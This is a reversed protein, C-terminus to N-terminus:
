GHLKRRNSVQGQLGIGLPGGEDGTCCPMELHDNRDGETGDHCVDRPFTPIVPPKAWARAPARSVRRGAGPLGGIGPSVLPRAIGRRWDNGEASREGDLTAQPLDFAPSRRLLARLPKKM